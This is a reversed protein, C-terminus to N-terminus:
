VKTAQDASIADAEVIVAATPSAEAAFKKTRMGTTEDLGNCSGAKHMKMTKNIRMPYSTIDSNISITANITAM